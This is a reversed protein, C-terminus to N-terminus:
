LKKKYVLAELIDKEEVCVRGDLNAITLALRKVSDVARESLDYKSCIFKIDGTFTFYLPLKDMPIHSNCDIGDEDNLVRAQIGRAMNIKSLVVEASSTSLATSNTLSVVMDIRDLFPGSFKDLYKRVQNPSCGCHKEPDGYNGCPCSNTCAVLLFDAPYEYIKGKISYVFKRQEIVTRLSELLDRSFEGLEDLFLVGKNSLSIEGHGYKGGLLATKSITHHPSRLSPRLNYPINTNSNLLRMNCSALHEEQSLDPLLDVLASGLLSKGVGPSGILLLSHGGAAAITLARKAVNNGRIMDVHYTSQFSRLFDGKPTNPHTNCVVRYKCSGLSSLDKISSILFFTINKYLASPLGDLEDKCLLPLAISSISNKYCHYIISYINPIPGIGGDLGVEGIFMTGTPYKMGTAYSVFGAAIALDAITGVKPLDSPFLSVVARHKPLRIGVSAFASRIRRKSESISKSVLGIIEIDPLGYRSVSLQVDVTEFGLPTRTLTTTKIVSGMTTM